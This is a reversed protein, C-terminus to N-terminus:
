PRSQFPPTELDTGSKRKPPRGARGPTLRRGLARAALSRFAPDGLAGGSNTAARIEHLQAAALGAGVLARYAAHRSDAEQGLALYQPHPALWDVRAAGANALHSSWRYDGARAVMGARVPNLEIYRYCAMVYRESQAICSRFRGEWLTGTRERSRNVYQVYRQGLNKMLLACADASRPTALLHVHNTMLCYAHIECGHRRSLERLHDLYVLYDADRHFCASRNNGRQIIHVAVDPLIARAHRPM